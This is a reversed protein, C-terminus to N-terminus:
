VLRSSYTFGVRFGALGTVVGTIARLALPFTVGVEPEAHSRRAFASGAPLAFGNRLLLM